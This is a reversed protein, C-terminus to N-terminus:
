DELFMEVLSYYLPITLFMMWGPHWLKLVFGAFLYLVAVWVPYPFKRWTRKKLVKGSFVNSVAETKTKVSLSEFSKNPLLLSDLSIQYLEALKVLTEADPSSKATEWDSVAQPAAGLKEALEEQSLKNTERLFTLRKAIEFNM